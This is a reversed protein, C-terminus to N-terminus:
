FSYLDAPQDKGIEWFLSAGEIFARGMAPNM